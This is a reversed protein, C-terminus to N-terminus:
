TFSYGAIAEQLTQNDVKGNSTLPLKPMSVYYAPVMYAPLRLLLFSRLAAPEISGESVYCAVLFRRTGREKEIVVVHDINGYAYLADEIEEPDIRCGNVKVQRDIRGVFELTGDPMWKGLDGTRYMLANSDYPNPVFSRHTLQSADGAYGSALGAGSVCIEGPVGIPQVRDYKDVIVIKTNYLPRGISVKRHESRPGANEHEPLDDMGFPEPVARFENREGDLAEIIIFQDKLVNILDDQTTLPNSLVARFVVIEGHTAHRIITKSVFTRGYYFQNEQIDNNLKNITANMATTLAGKRLADRLASPIYRYNVINIQCSVLEFADQAAILHAFSAAREIGNDILLAYGKKGIVSLSAHLCMSLAPRSGEITFRGTDYSDQKAQYNAVTSNYNLQSPDRFLCISIGQPLFLQKHGCFTISDANEIGLILHRHVESFVLAGGWAADVHFHIHHAAAIRGIEPLPDISGRETSGAIGVIALILRKQQKCVAIKEELDPISMRGYMDNKVYVINDTGLGLVSVAKRFSYHMLESGILVMDEYGQERLLTYISAGHKGNEGARSGYLARNRATLLASMNATSGGSTIIGLNTNLKQVNEDYFHAPFAYFIRHLIAIAERELFTVSKSTEIKVLNQNLRSILKSLDHVYDPLVSTMHGIFAPSSTDITYPIVDRDLKAYYESLPVPYDAIESNLFKKALRAVDVQGSTFGRMGGAPALESAIGSTNRFYKLVDDVNYRDVNCYSVDAGVETSGYINVLRSRGFERYFQQALYFTLVEGSCFVYRLSDMQVNSHRKAKILSQLLSPVLTIRGIRHRALLTLMAGPETMQQDNLVVLSMGSLLPSFLEVVHDVFCFGTKHCCVEEPNYPFHDWGWHLRNVLAKQSGLVGKPKGTSGSTYIVYIDRSHPATAIHDACAAITQAEQDLCILAASCEVRKNQLINRETILFDAPSDRLMFDLRWEPHRPDLPLYLGGNKLVALVAVIYAVSRELLVGVVQGPQMGQHRLYAALKCAERSLEAYTIQQAEFLIAVTDPTKTVQAEFLTIVHGDPCDHATDNFQVLVQDLEQEGIIRIDSIRIDPIATVVSIIRKLYGAFREIRDRSFSRVAYTLCLHMEGSKEGATLALDFHAHSLLPFHEPSTNADFCGPSLLTFFVNSSFSHRDGELAGNAQPVFVRHGGPVVHTKQMVEAVLDSFQRDGGPASVLPITYGHTDELGSCVDGPAAINMVIDEQGSLKSLLVSYSALMVAFTTAEQQQVMVKLKDTEVANLVTCVQASSGQGVSAGAVDRPLQVPRMVRADAVNGSIERLIIPLEEEPRAEM